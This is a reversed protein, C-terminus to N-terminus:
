KHRNEFLFKITKIKMLIIGEYDELCIKVFFASKFYLAKM